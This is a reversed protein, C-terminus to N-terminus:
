GPEVVDGLGEGLTDDVGRAESDAVQLTGDQHPNANADAVTISIEGGPSYESRDLVVRGAPGATSTGLLELDDLNWSCSTNTGTPGVAFRLRVDPLDDAAALDARWLAWGEDRVEGDAQWLRSWTDGGDVSLEVAARDGSQLGLWRQVRVLCDSAAVLNLPPTRLWETTGMDPPYDGDPAHGFSSSGSWAADPDAVGGADGGGGGPAQRAWDGEFEFEAPQEFDFRYLLLQGAQEATTVTLPGEDLGLTGTNGALDTSRLTFRYSTGPQLDALAVAHAEAQDPLGSEQEGGEPGLWLVWGDAPEDTTWRVTAAVDSVQVVEVDLLQPPRGDVAATAESVGPLGSGDDPDQYVARLLDGDPAVLAPMDDPAGEGLWFSGEFAASDPGTETLTLALGGPASDSSLTVELSDVEGPDANAGPDALRVLVAGSSPKYAPRDFSLVGPGDASGVGLLEVDDINWGCYRASEDTPGMGWRIYVEPEGDAISSIDYSVQHWRREVIERGGNSWVDVWRERDTSVQLSASDYSEVGLWRWFRLTLESFGSCDIPGATLYSTYWMNNSYDGSLDYGYVNDGSYASGPDPGGREGGRGQPAGFAWGRDRAWGPSEDLTYLLLRDPESPRVRATRENADGNGLGDSARVAYYYWRGNDVERDEFSTGQTHGLPTDWDFGDPTDARHIAYSLPTSPDAGPEWSLVVKGNGPRARGLGAFVPPACDVVVTAAKTVDTGGEGDDADLYTVDISEGHAAELVTAEPGPEGGAVGPCRVWLSGRFVGLGRDEALDVSVADDGGRLAQVSLAETGALDGDAVTIGVPAWPGVREGALLVLGDSTSVVPVARRVPLYDHATVMVVLEGPSAHADGRLATVAVGDDGSYAAGALVGDRSVAVLARPVGANVRLEAVGVPLVPPIDPELERPEATWLDMSPDGLLNYMEYYRQMSGGNPGYHAYYGAFGRQILGALWTMGHGGGEPLFAEFLEKQLIDDEEWYSTVSSGLFAVAGGEARVWAEGFCEDLQYQGTLCAFSMTFPVPANTMRHVDRINVQIGDTWADVDGHGSYVNLSRGDDLAGYMDGADSRESDAYYRDSAYGREELNHAIVHEHTGETIHSNDHGSLFTAKREWGAPGPHLEYDLVKRLMRALQDPSRAPIRGIGVDPLYDEGDLTVYYLDTAPRDQGRGTFQPITDTDGVLLVFTPRPAAAEYLGALRDRLADATRGVEAAHIVTVEFGKETKFRLYEALEPSAELGSGIVAIFGVPLELPGTSRPVYQPAWPMLQRLLSAAHPTLDPRLGPLARRGAVRVSLSRVVQVEGRAPNYLVPRVELMALPQGGLRGAPVLRVASQPYLRDTGYLRGDLTLQQPARAGPLKPRPAQQPALRAPLGHEELRVRQTLATEIVPAALAAADAPLFTRLVPLSPRSVSGYEGAAPIRLTTFEGQDATRVVEWRLGEVKVQVRFGAGDARVQLQAPPVLSAPLPQVRTPTLLLGGSGGPMAAVLSAPLTPALLALLLPWVPIRRTPHM